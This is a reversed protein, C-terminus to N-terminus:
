AFPTFQVFLANRARGGDALRRADFVGRDYYWQHEPAIRQNTYPKDPIRYMRALVGHLITDHYPRVVAPLASEAMPLLTLAVEVEIPEVVDATPTPYVGATRDDVLAVAAPLGDQMTALPKTTLLLDRGSYSAGLLLTASEHNAIGLPYNEVGDVPALAITRRWVRSRALFDSVVWRSEYDVIDPTAGTLRLLASQRVSELLGLTESM